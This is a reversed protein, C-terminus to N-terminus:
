VFNLHLFFTVKKKQQLLLRSVDQEFCVIQNVPDNKFWDELFLNTEEEKVGKSKKTQLDKVYKQLFDKRALIISDAMQNAMSVTLNGYFLSEISLSSLFNRVHGHLDEVKLEKLAKLRAERLYLHPCLIHSLVNKALIKLKTADGSLLGNLHLNYVQQFREATLQECDFIVKLIKELFLDQKGSCGRVELELGYRVPRITYFQGALQAKYSMESLSDRIIFAFLSNLVSFKVSSCRWRNASTFKVFTFAKPIKLQVNPMHWARYRIREMNLFLEPMGDARKPDQLSILQPNKCILDNPRPVKHEASTECDNWAELVGPEIKEVHYETGFHPEVHTAFFKAKKTLITVRVNNPSLYAYVREILDPRWEEIVYDAALIQSKTESYLHMNQAITSAYNQPKAKDQQEFQQISILKLEEYFWQLPGTQRLLQIFQFVNLIVDDIHQEGTETLQISIMFLSFGKGLNKYSAVIQHAWSKARLHAYLGGEGKHGILQAVQGGPAAAYHCSMDEVPFTLNVHCVDKVPVVFTKTRMQKPLFPKNPWIREPLNKNPLNVLLSKALEEMEDLSSNHILCLCM